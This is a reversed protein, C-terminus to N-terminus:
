VRADGLKIVGFFSKGTEFKSLMGETIDEISLKDNASFHEVGGTFCTHGKLKREASHITNTCQFIMQDNKLVRYGTVDHEDLYYVQSYVLYLGSDKITLYGNNLTFHSDMGLSHVWNAAKWDIFRSQPHRLHGNGLYNSHQGYVYSSTDGNFHVSALPKLPRRRKTFGTDRVITFDPSSTSSEEYSDLYSGMQKLNSVKVVRKFPRNGDEHHKVRSRRSFVNPTKTTRKTNSRSAKNYSPTSAYPYPYVPWPSGISSPRAPYQTVSGGKLTYRSSLNKARREAYSESNIIVGDDTAAIVSRKSRQPSSADKTLNAASQYKDDSPVTWNLKQMLKAFYNKHAIITDNDPIFDNIDYQVIPDSDYEYPVVVQPEDEIDYEEFDEEDEFGILDKMLNDDFLKVSYLTQKLTEVENELVKVKTIILFNFVFLVVVLVYLFSVAFISFLSKRQGGFSGYDSIVRAKDILM